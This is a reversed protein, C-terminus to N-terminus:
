RVPHHGVAGAVGDERPRGGAGGFFRRAEFGDTRAEQIWFYKSEVFYGNCHGTSGSLGPTRWIFM